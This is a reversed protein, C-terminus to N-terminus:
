TSFLKTAFASRYAGSAAAGDADASSRTPRPCHIPDSGSGHHANTARHDDAPGTGVDDRASTNVVAADGRGDPCPRPELPSRAQGEQRNDCRSRTAANRSGDNGARDSRRSSHGVTAGDTCGRPTGADRPSRRFPSRVRPRKGAPQAPTSLLTAPRARYRRADDHHRDEGRRRCRREDRPHVRAVAMCWSREQAPASQAAPGRAGPKGSIGLSLAYRRTTEDDPADRLAVRYDRQARDQQGILDYALGRDAAFNRPDLGLGEAQAYYRLAEGPRESRVLISAMGAKARGDRPNVKEARAFLAAAGSLDGLGMSLDGAKILADINRPNSALQRMVDGLKDADTTGPIAQVVAQASAAAPVAALVLALAATLLHHSSRTM